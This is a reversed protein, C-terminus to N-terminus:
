SKNSELDFISDVTLNIIFQQYYIDAKSSFKNNTNTTTTLLLFTIYIIYSNVVTSLFTLLEKIFLKIFIYSNVVTSLLISLQINIGFQSNVKKNTSLRRKEQWNTKM